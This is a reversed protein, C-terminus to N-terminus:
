NKHESPSSVPPPDLKLAALASLRASRRVTRHIGPLLLSSFLQVEGPFVRFFKTTSLLAPWAGLAEFAKWRFSRISTIGFNCSGRQYDCQECRIEDDRILSVSPM